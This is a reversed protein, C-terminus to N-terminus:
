RLKFVFPRDVRIRVQRGNAVAPTFRCHALWDRVAEVLVPPADSNRLQVQSVSGDREVVYHMVVAGTIGMIRAQEPMTPAPPDCLPRPRSVGPQGLDVIEIERHDPSTSCDSGICDGGIESSAGPAGIQGDGQGEDGSTLEPPEAEPESQIDPEPQPPPQVDTVEVPRTRPRHRNKRTQDRTSDGKPGPKAPERWRPPDIIVVPPELEPQKRLLVLAAVLLAGHALAALAFSVARGGRRVEAREFM